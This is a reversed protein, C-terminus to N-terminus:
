AADGSALGPPWAGDRDWEDLDHAPIPDPWRAATGDIEWRDFDWFSRPDTTTM